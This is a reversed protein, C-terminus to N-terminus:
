FILAFILLLSAALYSSHCDLKKVDVGLQDIYSDIDVFNELPVRKCQYCTNGSSDKYQYYCCFESGINYQTTKCFDVSFAPKESEYEECTKKTFQDTLPTQSKTACILLILLLYAKM